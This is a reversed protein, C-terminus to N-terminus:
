VTLGIQCKSSFKTKGLSLLLRRTNEQKLVTGKAWKMVVLLCDSIWDWEDQLQSELYKGGTGQRHKDVISTHM